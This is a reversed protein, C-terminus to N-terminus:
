ADGTLPLPYKAVSWDGNPHYQVRIWEGNPTKEMIADLFERSTSPQNNRAHDIILRLEHFSLKERARKLREDAVIALWGADEIQITSM